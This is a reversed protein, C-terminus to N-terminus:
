CHVDCVQQMSEGEANDSSCSKTLGSTSLGGVFDELGYSHGCWHEAKVHAYVIIHVSAYQQAKWLHRDASGPHFPSGGPLLQSISGSGVGSRM